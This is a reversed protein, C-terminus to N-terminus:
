WISQQQADDGRRFCTDYNVQSPFRQAQGWRRMLKKSAFTAGEERPKREKDGLSDLRKSLAYLNTIGVYASGGSYCGEGAQTKVVCGRDESNIYGGCSHIARGCGPDM